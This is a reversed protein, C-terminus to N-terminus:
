QQSPMMCKKIFFDNLNEFKIKEQKDSGFARMTISREEIEKKGLILQFPIKKLSNERIKYSIKENRLDKEVRIGANKLSEYVEEGYENIETTIPTVVAQVPSLWLPLAGAYHEILIGTFRELSGFLARHLMVPNYKQGDEAIFHGGLREPMNLDVQLTGCQWERGIADKLIFELKPGYFAGEGPNL